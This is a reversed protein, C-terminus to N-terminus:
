KYVSRYNFRTLLIGVVAFGGIVAFAMGIDQADYGTFMLSHMARVIYEAPNGKIINRVLESGISQEPMFATTLFILIFFLPFIAQVAQADKTKLAVNAVIIGVSFIAFLSAIALMLLAGPLGTAPEAKFLLALGLMFAGQVYIRLGDSILRGLLIAWMSVPALLIKNFYGNQYDNVLAVGANAIGLVCVFFVIAPAIYEYYNQTPFSGGARTIQDPLNEFIAGFLLFQILPPVLSFALVAPLRPFQILARRTLLWTPRWLSM